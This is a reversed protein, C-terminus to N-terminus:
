IIAFHEPLSEGPIENWSNSADLSFFASRGTFSGATVGAAFEPVVISLAGEHRVIAYKDDASSHFAAKPHSHVQAVLSLRHERLHEMLSDMSAAPIWFRDPEAVHEPRYAEVVLRADERRSSLWLVVCEKRIMGASRLMTLTESVVRELCRLIVLRAAEM